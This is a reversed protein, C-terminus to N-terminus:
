LIQKLKKKKCTLCKGKMQGSKGDKYTQLSIIICVHLNKNSQWREIVLFLKESVVSKIQEFLYLTPCCRKVMPFYSLQWTGSSTVVVVLYSCLVLTSFLCCLNLCKELQTIRWFISIIEPFLVNLDGVYWLFKWFVWASSCTPYSKFRCIVISICVQTKISISCVPKVWFKLASLKIACIIKMVNLDHCRLSSTNRFYSTGGWCYFLGFLEYCFWRLVAFRQGLPRNM